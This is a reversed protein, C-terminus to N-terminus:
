QSNPPGNSLYENLAIRVLHSMSQVRVGDVAARARAYLSPKLLVVLRKHAKANKALNTPLRRM